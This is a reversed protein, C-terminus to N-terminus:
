REQSYRVRYGTDSPESVCRRQTICHSPLEHVQALHRFELITHRYPWLPDASSTLLPITAPICLLTGNSTCQLYKDNLWDLSRYSWSDNILAPRVKLRFLTRRSGDRSCYFILAHAISLFSTTSHMPPPQSWCSKVSGNGDFFQLWASVGLLHVVNTDNVTVTKSENKMENRMKNKQFIFDFVLLFCCSFHGLFCWKEFVATTDTKSANRNKM